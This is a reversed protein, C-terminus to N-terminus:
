PGVCHKISISPSIFTHKCAHSSATVITCARVSATLHVCRFAMVTMTSPDVSQNTTTNVMNFIIDPYPVRFVTLRDVLPNFIAVRSTYNVAQLLLLHHHKCHVYVVDQSEWISSLQFPQVHIHQPACTSVLSQQVAASCVGKIDNAVLRNIESANVGAIFLLGITFNAGQVLAACCPRVSFAPLQLFHPIHTHSM